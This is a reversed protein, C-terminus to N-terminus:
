QQPFYATPHQELYSKIQAPSSLITPDSMSIHGDDAEPDTFVRLTVAAIELGVNAIQDFGLTNILVLNEEDAKLNPYYRFASNGKTDEIIVGAMYPQDTKVTFALVDSHQLPKGIEMRVRAEDNAAIDEGPAEMHSPQILLSGDQDLKADFSASIKTQITEVAADVLPIEDTSYATVDVASHFIVSCTEPDSPVELSAIMRSAFSGAQYASVKESRLTEGNVLCEITIPYTDTWYPHPAGVLSFLVSLKGEEKTMVLPYAQKFVEARERMMPEYAADGTLALMSRFQAFEILDYHTPNIVPPNLQYKTWAGDAFAYESQRAVVGDRSCNYADNLDADGTQRALYYLAQLGWLHGNLVYYEQDQSMGSWAYESLWCGKGDRWLVGGDTPPTLARKASQLAIDRYKEDGTLEFAAYIAMPGFMADMGSWWPAKINEYDFGYFWKYGSGERDAPEYEDIMYDIARLGSSLAETNGTRQYEVLLRFGLFFPRLPDQKSVTQRLGEETYSMQDMWNWLFPALEEDTGSVIMDQPDSHQARAEQPSAAICLTAALFPTLLHQKM